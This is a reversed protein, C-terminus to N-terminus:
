SSSGPEIMRLSTESRRAHNTTSATLDASGAMAPCGETGDKGTWAIARGAGGDLFQDSKQDPTRPETAPRVTEATCQIPTTESGNGPNTLPGTRAYILSSPHGCKPTVIVTRTMDKRGTNGTVSNGSTRPGLTSVAVRTTATTAIDGGNM